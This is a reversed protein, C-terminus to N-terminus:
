MNFLILVPQFTSNLFSRCKMLDREIQNALLMAFHSGIRKKWQLHLEFHLYQEAWKLVVGVVMVTMTGIRSDLSLLWFTGYISREILLLWMTSKIVVFTPEYYVQM